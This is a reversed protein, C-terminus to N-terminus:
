LSEKYIKTAEEKSVGKEEMIAKVAYYAGLNNASSVGCERSSMRTVESGFKSTYTKM